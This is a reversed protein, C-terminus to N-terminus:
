SIGLAGMPQGLEAYSVELANLGRKFLLGQMLWRTGGHLMRVM